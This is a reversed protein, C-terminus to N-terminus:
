SVNIGCLSFFAYNNKKKNIKQSNPVNQIPKPPNKPQYTKLLAIPNALISTQYPMDACCKLHTIMCLLFTQQLHAQEHEAMHTLWAAWVQWGGADCLWVGASVGASSGMTITCRLRWFCLKSGLTKTCLWQYSCDDKKVVIAM